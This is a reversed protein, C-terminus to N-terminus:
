AGELGDLEVVDINQKSKTKTCSSAALRGTKPASGSSSGPTKKDSSRKGKEGQEKREDEKRDKDHDSRPGSSFDIKNFEEASVRSFEVKVNDIKTDWVGYPTREGKELGFLLM